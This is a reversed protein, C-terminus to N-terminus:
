FQYYFFLILKLQLITFIFLSFRVQQRNFNATIVQWKDDKAIVSESSRGMKQKLRENTRGLLKETGAKFRDLKTGEM